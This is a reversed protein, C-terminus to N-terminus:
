TRRTLLGKVVCGVPLVPFWICGMFGGHALDPRPKYPTCSSLHFGMSRCQALDPSPSRQSSILFKSARMSRPALDPSLAGIPSPTLPESLLLAVEMIDDVEVTDEPGGFVEDRCEPVEVDKVSPGDEFDDNDKYGELDRGDM